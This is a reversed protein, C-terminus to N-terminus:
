EECHDHTALTMLYISFQPLLKLCLMEGVSIGGSQRIVTIIIIMTFM